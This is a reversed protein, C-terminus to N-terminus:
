KENIEKLMLEIEELSEMKLIKNSFEVAEKYNSNLIIDKIKGIQSGVSSFEDLGMGLLLYTAKTDSAMSGCMGTWKGAEHSADIVMKISRLVAPNFYNYLHSVAENGRDVALLYQTLDNTGISFFDCKKILDGALIVSAPTEIMIGVEINEDFKLGEEKLEEKYKKIYNQVKEIENVSIIMPLLIKVNGYYSARLIARLQSRFIDEKDFSIRLARWGLFPNEEHPFKYYSLGKDGGIDLTRIILPKDGLKEAVKKYAQFQTEESPFDSGQMYLFETRFLGVGEAGDEIGISLDEINGINCVVDVEKEDKTVARKFKLEELRNNEENLNKIILNYKEIEETSPNLIVNGNIADLIIFDGDKIRLTADKCGVVAPISLTQAIISVHSTKGGLDMVFGDIHNRDMISTDSPTLEESIIIVNESLNSLTKPNIGKLKYMLQEGVDKYDAAREKLYEDDLMEIMMVMESITQSLAQECNLNENDIKGYVSDILYPDQILEKHASAVERQAENEFNTEDLEKLHNLIATQIRDKHSEKDEDSVTNKDIEFKTKEFIYAKGISIGTSAVIGSVVNEM